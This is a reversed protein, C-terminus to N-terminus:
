YIHWRLKWGKTLLGERGRQSKVVLRVKVVPVNALLIKVLAASQPKYRLHSARPLGGSSDRLFASPSLSWVFAVHWCFLRLVEHLPLSPQGNCGWGLRPWIAPHPSSVFLATRQLWYIKSPITQSTM